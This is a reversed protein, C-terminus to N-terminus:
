AEGGRQLCNIHKKAKIRNNGQKQNIPQRKERNRLWSAM